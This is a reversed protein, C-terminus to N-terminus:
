NVTRNRFRYNKNIDRPIKLLFRDGTKEYIRGAIDERIENIEGLTKESSIITTKSRIYRNEIINFALSKEAESPKASKLFDDIFLIEASDTEALKKEKLQGDKNDSLSLIERFTDNWRIYKVARGAKMLEECLATCIHTKGSGSQGGIFFFSDAGGDAFALATSKIQRQWQEDCRFTDFSRSKIMESLGSTVVGNMDSRIKMCSCEAAKIGTKGDPLYIMGKDNCKTCHYGKLNGKRANDKILNIDRLDEILKETNKCKPAQILIEDIIGYEKM